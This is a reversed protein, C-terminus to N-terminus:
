LYGRYLVTTRLLGAETVMSDINSTGDYLSSVTGWDAARNKSSWGLLFSELKQRVRFLPSPSALKVSKAAPHTPKVWLLSTHPGGDSCMRWSCGGTGTSREGPRGREETCPLVGTLVAAVNVSDNKKLFIDQQGSNKQKKKNIHCGPMFDVCFNDTLVKWVSLM